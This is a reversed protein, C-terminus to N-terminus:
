MLKIDIFDTRSLTRRGASIATLVPTFFQLSGKRLREFSFSQLKGEALTIEFVNNMLTM